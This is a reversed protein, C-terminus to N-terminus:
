LRPPQLETIGAISAPHQAESEISFSLLAARPLDFAQSADLLAGSAADACGTVNGHCHMTHDSSGEIGVVDAVGFQHDLAAIQLAVVVLLLRALVAVLLRPRRPLATM